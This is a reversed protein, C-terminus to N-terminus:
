EDISDDGGINKKEAGGDKTWLLMRKEPSITARRPEEVAM